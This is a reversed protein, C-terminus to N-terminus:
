APIVLTETTDAEDPEESFTNGEPTAQLWVTGDPSIDFALVCRGPLYRTWTTGDFNALGGCRSPTLWVSGDPAARVHGGSAPVGEEDAFVALSAGTMHVLYHTTRRGVGDNWDYDGLTWTGAVPIDLHQYIWLAGHPDMDVADIPVLPVEGIVEGHGEGDERHWSRVLRDLGNESVVGQVVFEVDGVEAPPAVPSVWFRENDEQGDRAELIQSADRLRVMGGATSVWVTGDPELDFSGVSGNRVTWTGNAFSGLAATTGDDSEVLAWLTGDPAVQAMRDVRNPTEDTVSYTPREGLRYWEDAGFLWVSGDLGAVVNARRSSDWDAPANYLHLSLDRCGDNVVRLVGPEVDETVLGAPLGTLEKTSPAATPSTTPSPTATPSTTAVPALSPVPLPGQGTAFYLAGTGLAILAIL